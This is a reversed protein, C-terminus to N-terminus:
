AGRLARLTCHPSHLWMYWSVGPDPTAYVIATFILLLAPSSLLTVALGIAISRPLSSPTATHTRRATHRKDSM